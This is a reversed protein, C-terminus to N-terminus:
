PNRLPSGVGGTCLAGPEPAQPGNAYRSIFQPLLADTASELPLQLGWASAVVPSPLASDASWPSVLVYDKGRALARLAQVDRDPLDPRYTIWVAGHEMSHVGYESPVPQDYVGCNQWVPNHIGGVPPLQAYAQPGPVHGRQLNSVREVGPIAQAMPLVNLYIVVGLALAVIGGVIAWPLWKHRASSARQERRQQERYAARAARRVARSTPGTTADSVAPADAQKAM